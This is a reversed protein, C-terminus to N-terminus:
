APKRRLRDLFHGALSWFGTTAFVVCAGAMIAGRVIPATEASPRPSM